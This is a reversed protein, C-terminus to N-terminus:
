TSVLIISSVLGTSPLLVTTATRDGDPPKFRGVLVNSVLSFSFEAAASICVALKHKESIKCVFIQCCGTANLLSTPRTVLHMAQALKKVVM